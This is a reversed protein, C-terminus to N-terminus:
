TLVFNRRPEDVMFTFSREFPAECEGQTLTEDEVDSCTMWYEPEEDSDEDRFVGYVAGLVSCAAGALVSLFSRRNLTM